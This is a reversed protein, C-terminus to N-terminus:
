RSLHKFDTKSHNYKHKFENCIKSLVINNDDDNLQGLDITQYVNQNGYKASIAIDNQLEELRIDFTFMDFDSRNNYITLPIYYFNGETYNGMKKLKTEYGYEDKDIVSQIADVIQDAFVQLTEM